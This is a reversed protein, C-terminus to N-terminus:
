VLFLVATSIGGVEKSYILSLIIWRSTSKHQGLSLHMLPPFSIPKSSRDVRDEGPRCAKGFNGIFYTM